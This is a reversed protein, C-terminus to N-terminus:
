KTESKPNKLLTRLKQADFVFREIFAKWYTLIWVGKFLCMGEAYIKPHLIVCLIQYICIFAYNKALIQMHAIKTTGEVEEGM